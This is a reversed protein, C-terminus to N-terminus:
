PSFSSILSAREFSCKWAVRDPAPSVETCYARVPYRPKMILASSLALLLPKNSHTHHITCKEHRSGTVRILLLTCNSYAKITINIMATGELEQMWLADHWTSPRIREAKWQLNCPAQETIVWKTPKQLLISLLHNKNKSWSQVTQKHHSCQILGQVNSAEPVVRSVNFWGNDSTVLIDNAPLYSCCNGCFREVRSNSTCTCGYISHPYRM